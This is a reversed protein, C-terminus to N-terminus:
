LGCIELIDDFQRKLKDKKGKLCSCAAVVIKEKEPLRDENYYIMVTREDDAPRVKKIWGNAVLNNYFRTRKYPKIDLFEDLEKMPMPGKDWLAVMIIYEEKTLNFESSIMEFIEDIEKQLDNLLVMDSVEHKDKSM